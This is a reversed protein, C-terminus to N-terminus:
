FQWCISPTNCNLYLQVLVFTFYALLLVGGEWRQLRKKTRTMLWFLAFIVVFAIVSVYYATTDGDLVIPRLVAVTGLVLSSNVVTSGIINGFAMLYERKAVTKIEFALEPLSTGVSILFLGVFIMPVNLEIALSEALRVILDSCVILAVSGLSMRLLGQELDKHGRLQLIRHRWSHDEYYEHEVKVLAKKEKGSLTVLSFVLYVSLLVFGDLRTLQKDLLLILPMLGILFAYMVDRWFLEDKARVVGSILAASGIVLSINGINSGLVVGLPLSETGELASAIAVFLEPMSTALAVILTTLGYAEVATGKSVQELGAVLFDTSRSLIYSLFILALLLAVIYM